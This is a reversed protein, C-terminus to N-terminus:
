KLNQSAQLRRQNQMEYVLNLLLLRQSKSLRKWNKVTCQM